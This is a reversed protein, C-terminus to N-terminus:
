CQCMEFVMLKCIVLFSCRPRKWLQTYDWSGGVSLTWNCSWINNIVQRWIPGRMWGLGLFPTAICYNTGSSGLSSLLCATVQTTKWWFSYHQTPVNALTNIWTFYFWPELKSCCCSFDSFAPDPFCLLLYSIVIFRWKTWNKNKNEPRAM